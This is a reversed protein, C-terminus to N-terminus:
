RRTRVARLIKDKDIRSQRIRDRALPLPVPLAGSKTVSTNSTEGACLIDLVPTAGHYKCYKEPTIVWLYIALIIGFLAIPASLVHLWWALSARGEARKIAAATRNIEEQASVQSDILREHLQFIVPLHEERLIKYNAGRVEYNGRTEVILSECVKLRKLLSPFDPFHSTIISRGFRNEIDDTINRYFTVISDSIDHDANFLYQEAVNIRRSIKKKDEESLPSNGFTRHANFFQRSAYRLDNIAPIIAAGNIQEAKKLWYEIIAWHRLLRVFDAEVAARFEEDTM